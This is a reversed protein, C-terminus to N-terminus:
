KKNKKSWKTHENNALLGLYHNFVSAAARKKRDEPNIGCATVRIQYQKFVYEIKRPDFRLLTMKGDSDIHKSGKMTHTGLEEPTFVEKMLTRLFDSDNEISPGANKHMLSITYPDM